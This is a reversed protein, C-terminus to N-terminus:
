SMHMAGCMSTPPTPPIKSASPSGDVADGVVTWYNLEISCCYGAESCQEKGTVDQTTDLQVSFMGARKVGAYISEETM